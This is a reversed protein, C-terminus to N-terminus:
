PFVPNGRWRLIRWLNATGFVLRIPRPRKVDAIETDRMTEARPKQWLFGCQNDAHGM